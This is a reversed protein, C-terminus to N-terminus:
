PSKERKESLVIPRLKESKKIAAVKENAETKNGFPGMLVRHWVGRNMIVKSVVKAPYGRGKLREALKRAREEDRFSAVQVYYVLSTSERAPQSPGTRIGPPTLSTEKSTDIKKTEGVKIPTEIDLINDKQLSEYFTFQPEKEPRDPPTLPRKGIENKGFVEHSMRKGKNAISEFTKDKGSEVERSATKQTSSVNAFREGMWLGLSIGVIFIAIHSIILIFWGPSRIKKDTKEWYEKFDKVM